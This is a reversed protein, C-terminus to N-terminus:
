LDFFIQKIVVNEINYRESEKKLITHTCLNTCSINHKNM